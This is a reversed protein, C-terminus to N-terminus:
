VDEDVEDCYYDRLHGPPRRQRVPRGPHGASGCQAPRAPSHNDEEEVTAPALPRYPALRDQHLVVERRRGPMRVRYVVESLRAIVEGPGQWHSCLKPSVGKKRIPCYM